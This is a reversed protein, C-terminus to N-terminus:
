NGIEMVWYTVGAASRAYGIGYSGAARILINARERPSRTWKQIACTANGCGSTVNEAIAGQRCRGTVVLPSGFGNPNERPKKLYVNDCFGSRDIKDQTAMGRAHKEAVAALNADIRLPGLAHIHRIENITEARAMSATGVSLGVVVAAFLLARWIIRRTM